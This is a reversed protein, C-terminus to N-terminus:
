LGANHGDAGSKEKRPFHRSFPPNKAMRISGSMQYLGGLTKAM